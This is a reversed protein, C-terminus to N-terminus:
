HHKMAKAVAEATKKAIKEDLEKDSFYKAAMPVAVSAVEVVIKAVRIVIPNM